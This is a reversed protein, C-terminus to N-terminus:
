NFKIQVKKSEEVPINIYITKTEEDYFYSRKTKTMDKLSDVAKYNNRAAYVKEPAEENNLKLTYQEIDSDFRDAEMSKKFEIKNRKEEISFNTIDFEGKKHNLSKGDDEYFSYNAEDDVYTDLVLNTLEKEGTYQQVERTPVISDEKMFIPLHDLPADVTITQGGKYEKKTWFDIWTEGKPLYVKRSTQGKKVVPALMMSDGFMFQDSVNYTKEDEQFHYVLPQQVPKGTESSDKFANYLYPLLKYRMEIYKKSTKEAEPGFRWPEQGYNKPDPMYHIRSFPLFAGVEIWRTFLESDASSAFGGIDNGVFSVGSLGINMNMPMSMQLHEWNSTNDGTWIAAYRQSGAFMDRTLIFPRENPKYMSWAKHTGENERHGFLNHFETSYIKNEDSGFYTDLPMTNNHKDDDRFVSPENMDNWIGDIGADFLPKHSKAWWNRVEEKSFDPFVSDGPWVPGVFNSGDPNKAWYDKATGEKYVSYNEDKKVGPDNIAIAHFGEMQKLRKLADKYKQDWTFVRYDQMYDIDFHMTDLPIKKERYTKAVNVIEDPTYEWKSQHLGLTWEAPLDMKGTLETYRDIVNSIEPGYMFYYTLPGGNAYFYYYDDSESAMEYYSRHSNDFLIGYAKKDKLGMFFPISTYLYKTDKSYGFADTNWMGVSKGRKNLNLGGQEGFGYFNEEKNTKKFVYPKGNEYGSSAGNKMYDENIVNGQKDLFKVGFKSKNIKITLEKTTITYEDQGDSTEFSPTKWDKKHIAPSDFEKQGNKLVSVKALDESYLRIFAKYEGLDFQVGNKLNKVGTVTFTQLNDKNLPTDPEPQAAPTQGGAPAAFTTTITSPLSVVMVLAAAIMVRFLQTLKLM